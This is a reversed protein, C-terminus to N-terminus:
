IRRCQMTWTGSALDITGGTENQLRAKCANSASVYANLTIGQLDYPAICQVATAGLGAGVVAIAASTEGVGDALSGPDWVFTVPPLYSLDDVVNPCSMARDSFNISVGEWNASDAAPDTTGAGNTKRRYVLYDTPSWTCTGITYTTGSVWKAANTIAVANAASAAAAVAQATALVVQAAGNTTALGAQTTATVAAASATVEKANVNTELANAETIATPLAAILADGRADFTSPDSTSPAPTPLASIPM